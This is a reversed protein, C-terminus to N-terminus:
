ENTKRGNLSDRALEWAAEHNEYAERDLLSVYVTSTGPYYDAIARLIDDPIGVFGDNDLRREIEELAARYREARKYQELSEAETAELQAKYRDREAKLEVIEHVYVTMTAQAKEAKEPM